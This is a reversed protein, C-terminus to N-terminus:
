RRCRGGPTTRRRRARSRRRYARRRARRTASAAYRLARRSPMSRVAVAELISLATPATRARRTRRRQDHLEVTLRPPSPPTRRAGPASSSRPPRSSRPAARVSGAGGSPKWEGSSEGGVPGRGRRRARADVAVPDHSGAPRRRTIRRQGTRWGEDVPTVVLGGGSVRRRSTRATRAWWFPLSCSSAVHRSSSHAPSLWATRSWEFRARVVCRSRGPTEISGIFPQAERKLLVDGRDGNVVPRQRGGPRGPADRAVTDPALGDETLGVRLRKM